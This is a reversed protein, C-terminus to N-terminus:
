DNHMCLLLLTRDSKYAAMVLLILDRDDGGSYYSSHILITNSFCILGNKDNETLLANQDIQICDKLQFGILKVKRQM